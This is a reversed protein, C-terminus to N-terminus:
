KIEIFLSEGRKDALRLKEYLNQFTETSKTLGGVVTNKGVLVCGDTDEAKNGIHILVGDFGPIGLIRPLYGKCFGYQKMYRSASFKPSKVKLTVAYTGTPIATKGKVKVRLVASPSMDKTLKRDTDELTNCFFVGNVYLNGITYGEKKWKRDLLLRM